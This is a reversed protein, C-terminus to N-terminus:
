DQEKRTGASIGALRGTCWASQLNFGGTFGDIDLIEGALFLGPTVKSEMSSPNVESLDVGGATVFEDGAPRSVVSLPVGKIWAACKAADRKGVKGSHRDDPIKVLRCCIEALSKPIFTALTNAFFRAPQENSAEVIKKALEAESVEPQLDVTVPLPHSQDIKEFATLASLAFVAPGTVGRHTFMFPGLHSRKADGKVSVRAEAFSVGSVEGTWDEKVMFSSLSPALPTISHGLAEAFNYGDGQSGTHRYAQGGTTL